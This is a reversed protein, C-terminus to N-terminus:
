MITSIWFAFKDNDWDYDARAGIYSNGIRFYRGFSAGQVLNKEVKLSYESM